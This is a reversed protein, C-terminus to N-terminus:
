FLLFQRNVYRYRWGQSTYEVIDSTRWNFQFFTGFKPTYFRVRQDETEPLLFERYQANVRAINLKFLERYVISAIDKGLVQTITDM